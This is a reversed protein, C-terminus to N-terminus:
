ITFKIDKLAGQKQAQRQRKMNLKSNDKLDSLYLVLMGFEVCSPLWREKDTREWLTRQFITSNLRWPSYKM